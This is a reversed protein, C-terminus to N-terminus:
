SAAPLSRDLAVFRAGPSNAAQVSARASGRRAVCWGAAHATRYAVSTVAPLSCLRQAISEIARSRPHMTRVEILRQPEAGRHVKLAHPALGMEALRRLCAPLADAEGGAVSVLFDAHDA